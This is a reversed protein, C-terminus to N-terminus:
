INEGKKRKEKKKYIDTQWTISDEALELAMDTDKGRSSGFGVCDFLRFVHKLHSGSGTLTHFSFFAGGQGVAVGGM